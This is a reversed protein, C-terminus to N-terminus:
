NKRRTKRSMKRQKRTKRRRSSGYRVNFNRPSKTELALKALEFQSNSRKPKLISMPSAPRSPPPSVSELGYKKNFESTNEKLFANLASQFQSVKPM